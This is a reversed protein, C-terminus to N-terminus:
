QDLNLGLSKTIIEKVPSHIPKRDFHFPDAGFGAPKEMNLIGKVYSYMDVVPIGHKKMVSSAIINYEIESGLAFVNSTSHRIPTTNGWIIRAGTAKLKQVLLNLNSEYKKPDTTRVGGVHRPMIRHSKIKPVRHILDGFGCNFYILDWRKGGLYQNLVQLATSSNWVFGPEHRPFHIEIEERLEKKLENAPQQYVKDGLILVSPLADEGFLIGWSLLFLAILSAAWNGHM